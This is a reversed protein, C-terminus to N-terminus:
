FPEVGLEAIKDTVWQSAAILENGDLEDVPGWLDRFEDRHEREIGPRAMMARIQGRLRPDQAVPTVKLSERAEAIGAKAAARETVVIRTASTTSSGVPVSALVEKTDPVHHEQLPEVSGVQGSVTDWQEEVTPLSVDFARRLAMVEACKVAM